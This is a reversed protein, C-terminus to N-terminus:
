SAKQDSAAAKPNSSMKFVVNSMTYEAIACGTLGRQHSPRTLPIGSTPSPKQADCCNIPARPARSIRHTPKWAMKRPILSRTRAKSARETGQPGTPQRALEPRGASTLM